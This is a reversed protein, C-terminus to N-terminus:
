WKTVPTINNKSSTVIWEKRSTKLLWEQKLNAWRNQSILNPFFMTPCRLSNDVRRRTLTLFASTAQKDITMEQFVLFILVIQLYILCKRTIDLEKFIILKRLKMRLFLPVKAAWIQRPTIKSIWLMLRLQQHIRNRLLMQLLLKEREEMLAQHEVSEMEQEKVWRVWPNNVSQCRVKTTTLDVRITTPTKKTVIKTKQCPQHPTTEEWEQLQNPSRERRTKTRRRRKRKTARKKRLSPFTRTMMILFKTHTEQLSQNSLPKATQRTWTQQSVAEASDMLWPVLWITSQEQDTRVSIIIVRDIWIMTKITKVQVMVEKIEMSLWIKDQSWDLLTEQGVKVLRSTTASLM